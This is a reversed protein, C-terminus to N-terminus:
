VELRYCITTPFRVDSRVILTSSPLTAGYQPSIYDEVQQITSLQSNVTLRIESGPAEHFFTEVRHSHNGRFEDHIELFGDRIYFHRTHDVVDNIIRHFGVHEISFHLSGGDEQWYVKSNRKQYFEPFKQARDYLFPDFGDVIISNHARASGSHEYLADDTKYTPRGLDVLIPVGNSFLVFSCVDAHGHTARHIMNGQPIHWFIILRCLEFRFWGSEPFAQMKNKTHAGKMVSFSSLSLLYQILWQPTCDPSVDGILPIQWEGSQENCVMFFLCREALKKVWPRLYAEIEKHETNKALEYIEVIWRTFLLHYHSSEERLFGDKTILWPLADKLVTLALMSLEKIKFEQGAFFLARANNVVHNGTGRVGHYEINRALHFTMIVLADHVDTPIIINRKACFLLANVIREGTTYSTGPIGKPIPSMVGIWSRMLAIGEETGIDDYVLWGWRHLSMCQEPDNFTHLWDPVEEYEFFGYALKLKRSKISRQEYQTVAGKNEKIGIKEWVKRVNVPYQATPKKYRYKLSYVIRHFIFLIMQMFCMSHVCYWVFNRVENNM